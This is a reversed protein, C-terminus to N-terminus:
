TKPNPQMIREKLQLNKKNFNHYMTGVQEIKDSAYITPFEEFPAVVESYFDEIEVVLCEKQQQLGCKRNYWNRLLNM